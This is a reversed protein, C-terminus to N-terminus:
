IRPRCVTEYADELAKILVPKSFRRAVLDRGREGMRRRRPEDRLLELLQAALLLPDQEVTLGAGNGEILERLGYASGGIVPKSYSWAELYVAPLIETISPMCFVDCAAMANGKEQEDVLGIYKIRKDTREAFWNLSDDRAPGAFIFHVDPMERWVHPAADLLTHPGKNKVIRGVFLVVPKDGLGLRARFGHADTAEPLLPVVGALRIREEAVGLNRLIQRDTELLAFVIDADKCFMSIQWDSVNGEANPHLYPTTVIPVREARAADLTPLSIPSTNLIHVVDKGRVFPRLKSLYVSRRLKESLRSKLKKFRRPVMRPLRLLLRDLRSFQLSSVPVASGVCPDHVPLLTLVEVRHKRALESAVLQMQTEVGGVRQHYAEAVLLIHM